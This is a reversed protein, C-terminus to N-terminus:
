YKCSNAYKMNIGHLNHLIIARKTKKIFRIYYNQYYHRYYYHGTNMHPAFIYAHVHEM